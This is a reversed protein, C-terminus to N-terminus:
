LTKKDTSLFVWAHYEKSLVSLRFDWDLKRSLTQFHKKLLNLHICVFTNKSEIWYNTAWEVVTFHLHNFFPASEPNPHLNSKALKRHMDELAFYDSNTLIGLVQISGGKSGESYFNFIHNVECCM